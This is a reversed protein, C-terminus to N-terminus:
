DNRVRLECRAVPDDGALLWDERSLQTDNKTTISIGILDGPHATDFAVVLTSARRDRDGKQLKIRNRALIRMQAVATTAATSDAAQLTFAAVDRVEVGPPFDRVYSTLREAEGRRVWWVINETEQFSRTDADFIRQHYAVVADRGLRRAQREGIPLTEALIGALRGPDAALMDEAVALSAWSLGVLVVGAWLLAPQPRLTLM